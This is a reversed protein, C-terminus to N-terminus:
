KVRGSLRKLKEKDSSSTEVFEPERYDSVEGVREQLRNFTKELDDKEMMGTRAIQIAAIQEAADVRELERAMFWFRRMPM